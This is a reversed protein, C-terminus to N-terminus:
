CFFFDYWCSVSVACGLSSLASCIIHFGQYGIMCGDGSLIFSTWALETCIQWFVIPVANGLCSSFQDLSPWGGPFRALNIKLMVWATSSAWAFSTFCCTVGQTCWQEYNFAALGVWYKVCSLIKKKCAHISQVSGLGRHVICYTVFLYCLLKKVDKTCNKMQLQIYLSSWLVIFLQKRHFISMCGSKKLPSWHCIQCKQRLSHTM